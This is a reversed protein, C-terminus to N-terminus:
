SSSCGTILLIGHPKPRRFTSCCFHSFAWCPWTTALPLSVLKVQFTTVENAYNLHLVLVGLLLVMNGIHFCLPTIFILQAFFFIVPSAFLLAFARMSQAPRAVLNLATLMTAQSNAVHNSAIRSRRLHVVASWASLGVLAYGVSFFIFVNGDTKYKLMSHIIIGGTLLSEFILVIVGESTVPLESLHLCVM